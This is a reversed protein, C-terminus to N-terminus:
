NKTVDNNGIFTAVAKYSSNNNTITINLASVSISINTDALIADVRTVSSGRSSILYLGHPASNSNAGGGILLLGQYSSSVTVVISGGNSNISGLKKLYAKSLVEEEVSTEGDSMMINDASRLEDIAEQVNDASLGSQSNNYGINTSPYNQPICGAKNIHGNEDIYNLTSM